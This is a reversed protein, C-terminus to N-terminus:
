GTYEIEALLEPTHRRDTADAAAASVADASAQSADPPVVLLDFRDHGFESMITVLGAPQSTYWGLRVARHDVATRGPHPLDWEATNLLVHTIEGRLGALARVLRPLETVADTSRPWWAGDLVTTRSPHPDLRLRVTDDPARAAPAATTQTM